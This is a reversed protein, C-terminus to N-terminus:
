PAPVPFRRPPPVLAPVRGLVPTLEPKPPLPLLMPLRLTEDPEPKPELLSAKPLAPNLPLEARDALLRPPWLMPPPPKLPPPRPRPPPPPPRRPYVFSRPILPQHGPWEALLNPPSAAGHRCRQTNCNDKAAATRDRGHAM